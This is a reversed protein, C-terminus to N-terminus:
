GSMQRIAAVGCAFRFSIFKEQERGRVSKTLISHLRTRVQVPPWVEKHRFWM